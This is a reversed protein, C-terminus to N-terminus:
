AGYRVDSAECGVGDHDADLGYPDYSGVAIPGYQWRPGNGTGGYCDVDDDVYGGGGGGACGGGKCAIVAATTVGILAAAVLVGNQTAVKNQCDQLHIGRRLLERMVDSRFQADTRADLAVRCLSTADPKAPDAYFKSPSTACGSLAFAAAAGIALYQRM